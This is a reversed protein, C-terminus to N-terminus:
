ARYIQNKIYSTLETFHALPTCKLSRKYCTEYGSAPKQFYNEM